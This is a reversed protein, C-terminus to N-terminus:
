QSNRIHAHSRPEIMDVPKVRRAQCATSLFRQVEYTGTQLTNVATAMSQFGRLHCLSGHDSEGVADLALPNPAVHGQFLALLHPASLAAQERNKPQTSTFPMRGVFVPSPM